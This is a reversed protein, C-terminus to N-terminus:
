KLKLNFIDNNPTMNYCKSNNIMHFLIISCWSLGVEEIDLTFDLLKFHSFKEKQKNWNKQLTSALINDKSQKRQIM